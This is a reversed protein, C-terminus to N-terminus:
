ASGGAPVTRARCDAARVDGGGGSERGGAPDKPGQAQWLGAVKLKKMERCVYVVLIRSCALFYM